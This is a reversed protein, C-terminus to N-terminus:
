EKIVNVQTQQELLNEYIFRNLSLFIGIPIPFELLRNALNLSLQKINHIISKLAIEGNAIEIVLTLDNLTTAKDKKQDSILLGDHLILWLGLIDNLSM